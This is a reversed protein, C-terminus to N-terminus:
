FGPKTFGLGEIGRALKKTKTVAGIGIVNTPQEVLDTLNAALPDEIRFVNSPQIKNRIGGMTGIGAYSGWAAQDIFSLPPLAAGVSQLGTWAIDLPLYRRYPSLTGDQAKKKFDESRARDDAYVDALNQYWISGLEGLNNYAGALSEQIMPHMNMRMSQQSDIQATGGTVNGMLFPSGAFPLFAALDGPEDGIRVNKLEKTVAQHIPTEDVKPINQQQNMWVTFKISEGSSDKLLGVQSIRPSTPDWLETVEGRLSAFTFEKTKVDKVTSLAGWKAAEVEVDGTHAAVKLSQMHEKLGLMGGKESWYKFFSFPATKAYEAAIQPDLLYNNIFQIEQQAAEKDRWQKQTFISAKNLVKKPDKFSLLDTGLTGPIRDATFFSGSLQEITTPTEYAKNTNMWDLPIGRKEDWQTAGMKYISDDLSEPKESTSRDLPLGAKQRSISKDIQDREVLQTRVLDDLEKQSWISTGSQKLGIIKQINSEITVRKSTLMRAVGTTTSYGGIESEANDLINRRYELKKIVIEKTAQPLDLTVIKNIERDTLRRQVGLPSYSNLNVDFARPSLIEPETRKIDPYLPNWTPDWPPKWREGLLSSKEYSSELLELPQSVDTGAMMRAVSREKQIKEIARGVEMRIRTTAEGSGQLTKLLEKLKQIEAFSM